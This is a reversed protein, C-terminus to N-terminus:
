HKVALQVDVFSEHEFPQFLWKRWDWRRMGTLDLQYGDIGSIAWDKRKIGM